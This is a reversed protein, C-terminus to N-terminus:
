LEWAEHALPARNLQDRYLRWQPMLRDMHERFRENHRRELLHVMEHLLVLELCADSKKALELNVWIRRAESNCSGWRTKMKKVGWEAVTVGVRPEWKAILAPVQERLRERYWRQLVAERQEKGAGPRVQLELTRNNRLSVGSPADREVVSLRYRRGRFYHCEGSVMERASQRDQEEFRAQQRRIWGLRSAVAVRVAADDLRRPVAARVRGKPPYVGLHFNKVDKRVVEVRVGQVQIEYRETTM